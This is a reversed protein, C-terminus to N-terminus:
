AGKKRRGAPKAPADQAPTEQADPQGCIGLDHLLRLSHVVSLAARAEGERGPETALKRLAEDAADFDIM